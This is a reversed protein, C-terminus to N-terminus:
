YLAALRFSISSIYMKIVMRVTRSINNRCYGMICQLPPQVLYRLLHFQASPSGLPSWWQGLFWMFYCPLLSSADAYATTNSYQCVTCLLRIHQAYAYSAVILGILAVVMTDSRVLCWILRELAKSPHMTWMWYVVYVMILQDLMLCIWIPLTHHPSRPLSLSLGLALCRSVLLYSLLAILWLRREEKAPANFSVFM